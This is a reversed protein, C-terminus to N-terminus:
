LISPDELVGKRAPLADDVGLQGEALDDSGFLDGSGANHGLPQYCAEGPIVALSIGVLEAQMEDLSTTETDVAVYGRERILEVWRALAELTAVREYNEPDIPPM